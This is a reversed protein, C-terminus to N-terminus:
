YKTLKQIYYQDNAKISLIYLGNINNHMNVSVSQVFPTESYVERGTVDVIKILEILGANSAIHVNHHVKTPYVKINDKNHLDISTSEEVEFVIKYVKSVTTDEATVTIVATRDEKEASTVDEAGVVVVKAYPDAADATVM